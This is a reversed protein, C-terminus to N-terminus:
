QVLFEVLYVNTVVLPAMDVRLRRMIAERLRYIGNGRIDQPRTEHLYTQFIDEIEPIKDQLSAEDSAGSIEVKATIKVYVPRGDGNDLNSIIPPIGLIIPPHLVADAMEKKSAVDKEVTQVLRGREWFTIGGGLVVLCVVGAIIVKLKSTKAGAPPPPPGDGAEARLASDKRAGGLPPASAGGTVTESMDPPEPVTFVFKDM